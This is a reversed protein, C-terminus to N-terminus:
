PAHRIRHVGVQAGRCDEDILTVWATHPNRLFAILEQVLYHSRRQLSDLSARTLRPARRADLGGLAPVHILRKILRRRDQQQFPEQPRPAGSRAAFAPRPTSRPGPPM